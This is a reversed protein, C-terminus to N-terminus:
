QNKSLKEFLITDTGFFLQDYYHGDARLEHHKWYIKIRKM